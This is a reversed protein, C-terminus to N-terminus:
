EAQNTPARIGALILTRAIESKSKGPAHKAIWEMFEALEDYNLALAILKYRGARKELKPPAM